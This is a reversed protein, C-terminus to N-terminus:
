LIILSLKKTKVVAKFVQTCYGKSTGTLHDGNQMNHKISKQEIKFDLGLYSFSRVTVRKKVNQGLSMCCIENVRSIINNNIINTM